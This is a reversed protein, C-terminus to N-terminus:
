GEARERINVTLISVDDHYNSAKAMKYFHDCIEQMNAGEELKQCWQDRILSDAFLQHFGDSSLLFYDASTFSGSATFPQIDGKVGLCQTLFHSKKQVGPAEPDMQGNEIQEKVWSHDETLQLLSKEEDLDITDDTPNERELVRERFRYIRTDGVHCLYYENGVFIIVSLTTGIKKNELRGAEILNENIEHFVDIINLQSEKMFDKATDHAWVSSKWWKLIYNAAYYSAVDGSTHGGMGDAIICIHVEENQNIQNSSFTLYDENVSKSAPTISVKGGFLKKGKGTNIMSSGTHTSQKELKYKM